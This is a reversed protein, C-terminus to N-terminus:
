TCISSTILWENLGGVMRSMSCVRSLANWHRRGQTVGKEKRWSRRGRIVEQMTDAAAEVHLLCGHRAQHEEVIAESNHTSSGTIATSPSRRRLTSTTPSAAAPRPHRLLRADCRRRRVRHGLRLRAHPHSRTPHRLLRARCPPPVTCRLRLSVPPTTQCSCPSTGPSTSCSSSAPTCGTWAGGQTVRARWPRRM